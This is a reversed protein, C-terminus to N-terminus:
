GYYRRRIPTHGTSLFHEVALNSGETPDRGDPTRAKWGCVECYLTVTRNENMELRVAERRNPRERRQLTRRGGRSRRNPRSGIRDGRSRRVPLGDPVGGESRFLRDLAEPDITEFLPPMETPERDTRKAVELVIRESPAANRTEGM